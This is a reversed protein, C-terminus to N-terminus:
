KGKHSAVKAKLATHKGDHKEHHKEKHHHEEKHHEHKMGKAPKSAKCSMEKHHEKKM